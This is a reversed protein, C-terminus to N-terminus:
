PTTFTGAAPMTTCTCIGCTPGACRWGIWSRPAPCSRMPTAWMWACGCGPITWRASSTWRFRRRRSWSTKWACSWARRCRRCFSGGFSWPNRWLGSRITYGRSLDRTFWWCGAVGIRPPPWPRPTAIGPWASLWPTSPPPVCSMSRRMSCM